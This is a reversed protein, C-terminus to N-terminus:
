TSAPEEIKFEMESSATNSLALQLAHSLAKATDGPLVLSVSRVNGKADGVGRGAAPMDFVFTISVSASVGRSLKVVYKAANGTNGYTTGGYKMSTKM